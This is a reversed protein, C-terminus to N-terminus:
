AEKTVKFRGKYEYFKGWWPHTMEVFMDFTDDDVPIEEAYGKGLIFTLPFPVYYGLFRLVYGKHKLIVKDNEWLYLMRWGIGFRMIEIVDNDKIQVMRSRFSYPKRTKFYFTRNFHFAQTVKASQFNVVVPVDKESFPPVSGMLMFLPWMIRIPGKCAVNLVGEVTVLDDTYPRNAYHKHIVPPLNKWNEGFIKKFIPESM